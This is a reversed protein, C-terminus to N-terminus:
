RNVRVLVRDALEDIGSPFERGLRREDGLYVLAHSPHDPIWVRYVDLWLNFHLELDQLAKALGRRDGDIVHPNKYLSDSKLWAMLATNVRHMAGETVGRIIAHLEKEKQTFQDYLAVFTAEFGDKGAAARPAPHDRALLAALRRAVENQAEFVSWSERLLSALVELRARTATQQARRGTWWSVFSKGLFGILGGILGVVFTGLWPPIEDLRM